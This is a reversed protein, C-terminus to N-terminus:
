PYEEGDRWGDDPRRDGAGARDAERDAARQKDSGTQQDTDLLAPDVGGHGIRMEHERGQRRHEDGAACSQLTPM